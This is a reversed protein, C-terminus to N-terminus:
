AAQELEKQVTATEDVWDTLFTTFDGVVETCKNSNFRKAQLAELAGKLIVKVGELEAVDTAEDSLAWNHAPSLDSSPSMPDVHTNRM